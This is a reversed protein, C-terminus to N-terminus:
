FSVQFLKVLSTVKPDTATIETKTKIAIKRSYNLKKGLDKVQFLFFIM